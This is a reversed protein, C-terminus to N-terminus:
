AAGRAATAQRQTEILHCPPCASVLTDPDETGPKTHHVQTATGECGTYSLRCAHGDRALVYARTSSWAPPMIRGPMGQSWSRPHEPCPQVASCTPSTCALAAKVPM